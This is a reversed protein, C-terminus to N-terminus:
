RLKTGCKICFRSDSENQYGCNSCLGSSTPAKATSTPTPKAPPPPRPAEPAEVQPAKLLVVDGVAAVNNGSIETEKGKEDALTISMEKHALDFSIEKITGLTVGNSDVVQKGVIKDRTLFKKEVVVM